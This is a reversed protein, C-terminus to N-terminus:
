AGRFYNSVADGAFPDRPRDREVHFRADTEVAKQLTVQYFQLCDAAMKQGSSGAIMAGALHSAVLWALADVFEPPFADEQTKATVYRCVVSDADALVARAGNVNETTFLMPDLAPTWGEAPTVSVVALCDSPLAFYKGSAGVPEVDLVPLRRRTLAFRWAHAALATEKALPYFRACHDAQVSGEPPDISAVTARDGLRALALNCIDIATAM